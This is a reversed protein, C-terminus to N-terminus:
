KYISWHVFPVEPVGTYDESFNIRGFDNEPLMCADIVANLQLEDEAVQQQLFAVLQQAQADLSPSPGLAGSMAEFQKGAGM